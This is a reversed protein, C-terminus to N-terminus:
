KTSDATTFPQTKLILRFRNITRGAVTDVFTPDIRILDGFNDMFRHMKGDLGRASYSKMADHLRIIHMLRQEQDDACTIGTIYLTQTIIPKNIVPPPAGKQGSETWTRRREISEDTEREGIHETVSVNTLYVGEPILASIMRLKESWLLRTEPNLADLIELQNALLTKLELLDKFESMKQAVQGKIEERTRKLDSVARDDKVKKNYCCWGFVVIAAYLPILILFILATASPPVGLKVRGRKARSLEPPLLNIRIM